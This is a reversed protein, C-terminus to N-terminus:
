CHNRHKWIKLRINSKSNITARYRWRSYNQFGVQKQCDTVTRCRGRNWIGVDSQNSAKSWPSWKSWHNLYDIIPVVLPRSNTEPNEDNFLTLDFNEILFTDSSKDYIWQEISDPATSIHIVVNSQVLLSYHNSKPRSLKQIEEWLLQNYRFVSDTLVSDALMGGFVYM